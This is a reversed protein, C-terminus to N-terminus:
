NIAGLGAYFDKAATVLEESKASAFPLKTSRNWKWKNKCKYYNTQALERLRATAIKYEDWKENGSQGVAFQAIHQYSLMASDNISSLRKLLQCYLNIKDCLRDHGYREDSLLGENDDESYISRM